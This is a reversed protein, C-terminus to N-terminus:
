RGPQGGDRALGPHLWGRDVLHHNDAVRHHVVQEKPDIRHFQALGGKGKGRRVAQGDIRALNIKRRQVWARPDIDQRADRAMDASIRRRHRQGFFGALRLVHHQDDVDAGIGLDKQAVPRPDQGTGARGARGKFARLNGATLARCRARDFPHFNVGDGFLRAEAHDPRGRTPHDPSQAAVAAVPTVPMQPDPMM